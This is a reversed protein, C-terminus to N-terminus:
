VYMPDGFSYVLINEINGHCQQSEEHPQVGTLPQVWSVSLPWCSTEHLVILRAWVPSTTRKQGCVGGYSSLIGSHAYM